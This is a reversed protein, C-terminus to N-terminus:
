SARGSGSSKQSGSGSGPKPRRAVHRCEIKAIRGVMSRVTLSAESESRRLRSWLLFHRRPREPYRVIRRVVFRRPMKPHAKDFSEAILDISMMGSLSLGLYFNGLSIIKANGARMEDHRVRECRRSDPVLSYAKGDVAEIRVAAHRDDGAVVTVNSRLPREFIFELRQPPASREIERVVDVARVYPRAGVLSFDLTAGAELM